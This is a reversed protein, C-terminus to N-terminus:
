CVVGRVIYLIVILVLFSLDFMGAPPIIRRMPALVPETLDLLVRYISAVLTDPRVPFWSLIARGFLVVIYATILACLISV